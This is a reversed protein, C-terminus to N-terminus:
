GIRLHAAHIATRTVGGAYWVALVEDPGTAVGSPHGFTFRDMSMLYDFTSLSGDAGPASQIDHRYVVTESAPDFTRGGDDSVHAVIAQAAGRRQQM